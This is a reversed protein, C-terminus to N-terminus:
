GQVTALALRRKRRRIWAYTMRETMAKVVRRLRDADLRVVDAM